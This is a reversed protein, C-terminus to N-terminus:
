TARAIIAINWINEDVKGELEPFPCLALVEFGSQLLYYSIEQPFFYRVIHTEKVEEILRSGDFVLLHYNVRCIHRLADLEPQAIRIIRRRGNEITKTRETPLIRLVALGNWFDFIFLSGKNLHKRISSLADLIDRTETLYNMVAFMCICADYRSQLNFTRLDSLELNLTCNSSNAKNKALELMTESKDFGTVEYGRKALVIAHGGTGCGGDLISHIPKESYKIFAQEIFDCELEYDKDQYLLDYYLSYNNFPM